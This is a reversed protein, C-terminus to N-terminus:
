RKRRLAFFAVVAAAALAGFGLQPVIDPVEPTSGGPAWGAFLQDDTRNWAAGWESQSVQGGLIDGFGQGFDAATGGPLVYAFANTVPSWSTITGLGQAFQQWNPTWDFNGSGLLTDGFDVGSWFPM